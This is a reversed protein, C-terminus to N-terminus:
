GVPLLPAGGRGGGCRATNGLGGPGALVRLRDLESGRCEIGRADALLDIKEVEAALAKPSRVVRQRRQGINLIARRTVATGLTM